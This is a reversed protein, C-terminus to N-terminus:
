SQIQENEKTQEVFAYGNILSQENENPLPKTKAFKVLDALRLTQSLEAIVPQVAPKYKVEGIIEDSTMEPANLGFRKEIYERLVDTLRIHFDKVDGKQWLKEAKIKDLKQLATIHPPVPPEEKQPIVPEQRSKKWIIYALVSVILIGLLVFVTYKLVTKWSLPVSYVPKIDRLEPQEADVAITRVSLPLDATQVTDNNVLFNFNLIYEGADFSTIVLEQSQKGNDSSVALEGVSVVEIGKVITDLPAFTPFNVYIEGKTEAELILKTQNGILIKTSDLRASVQVQAVSLLPFFSLILLIHKM